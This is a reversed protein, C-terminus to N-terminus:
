VGPAVARPRVVVAPVRVIQAPPRTVENVFMFPQGPIRKLREVIQESVIAAGTEDLRFHYTKFLHTSGCGMPPPPCTWPEPYSRAGDALTYAVSRETPHQIRVGPM